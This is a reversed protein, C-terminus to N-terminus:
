SAFPSNATLVLFGRDWVALLPWWSHTAPKRHAWSFRPGAGRPAALLRLVWSPGLTHQLNRHKFFHNRQELLLLNIIHVLFSVAHVADTQSLGQRSAGNRVVGRLRAGSTAKGNNSTGVVQRCSGVSKARSSILFLLTHGILLFLHLHDVLGDVTELVRAEAWVGRSCITSTGTGCIMTSSPAAQPHTM